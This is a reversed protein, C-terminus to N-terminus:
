VAEGFYALPDIDETALANLATKEPTPFLEYIFGRTTFRTFTGDQNMLFRYSGSQLGSRDAADIAEKPTNFNYPVADRGTSSATSAILMSRDVDDPSVYHVRKDTVWIDIETYQSPVHAKFGPSCPCMSCGANRSFGLKAHLIDVVSNHNSADTSEAYSGREYPPVEVKELLPLVAEIVKRQEKIELRNYRKWDKDEDSDDGRTSGYAPREMDPDPRVIVTGEAGDLALLDGNDIRGEGQHTDRANASASLVVKRLIPSAKKPTLALIGLAEDVNKGRILDAVIRTKRASIRIFKAVARAEM